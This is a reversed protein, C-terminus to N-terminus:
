ELIGDWVDLLKSGENEWALRKAYEFRLKKNARIEDINNIIKEITKEMEVTSQPTLLGIGNTEAGSLKRNRETAALTPPQAFDFGTEVSDFGCRANHEEIFQKQASTDTALVFLGAQTYAFIKNSLAIDKNLDIDSIEIALGVDFESIKLNLEKQPLPKVYEIFDDYEKLFEEHFDQRKNGILSIKLKDKFKALAPVMQELGRGWTINQSFWVFQLKESNNEKLQFEKESFSNNILFNEPMTENDYELVEKYRDVSICRAGSRISVTKLRPASKKTVLESSYQGILPSAYSIYTAKPLLKRMLLERRQKEAPSCKEGPHYDEIDFAFPINNKKSFVFVPYLAGLNHAVVLDYGKKIQKIKRVLQWTRKNHAYASIKRSKDFLINLTGSLRWVLTTVFWEFFSAKTASLYIFKVKALSKVHEQETNDSWNGLKFGIFTCKYGKEDALKLEKLLRPNTSLNTTTLFLLKKVKIEV